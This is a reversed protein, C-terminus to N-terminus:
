SLIIILIVIEIIKFWDLIETLRKIINETLAFPVVGFGLVVLSV